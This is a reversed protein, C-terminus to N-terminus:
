AWGLKGLPESAGSGKLREERPSSSASVSPQSPHRHRDGTSPPPCFTALRTATSELPASGRTHHNPFPFAVSGGAERGCVPRARRDERLPAASEEGRQFCQKPWHFTFPFRTRPPLKLALTLDAQEQEREMHWVAAARLDGAPRHCDHPLSSFTVM